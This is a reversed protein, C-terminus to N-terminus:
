KQNKGQGTCWHEICSRQLDSLLLKVSKRQKIIWINVFLGMLKISLTDPIDPEGEDFM